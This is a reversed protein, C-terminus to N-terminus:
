LADLLGEVAKNVDKVDRGVMIFRFDKGYAKKYNEVLLGDNM